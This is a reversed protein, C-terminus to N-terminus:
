TKMARLVKVAGGQEVAAGINRSFFDFNENCSQQLRESKIANFTHNVVLPIHTFFLVMM